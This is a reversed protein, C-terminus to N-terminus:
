SVLRAKLAKLSISRHRAMIRRLELLPTQHTNLGHHITCATTYGSDGVLDRIGENYDGYPYCFHRIAIGFKDELKKRSAAVEERAERYSVRTLYPHTLSHAGIEHGAALWERIQAEDMLPERIDGLPTDWENYEGIRDVVLFQIARFRYEALIPLANEFVCLFGDDFTIHFSKAPNAPDAPKDYSPTHFGAAALESMQRRFKEPTVYLGKIRAKQPRLGIKHYILSPRGTEFYKKFPKLSSFYDPIAASVRM